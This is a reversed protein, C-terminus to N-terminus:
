QMADHGMGARRIYMRMIDITGINCYDIGLERCLKRNYCDGLVVDGMSDIQEQTLRSFRRAIEEDTLRGPGETKGDMM